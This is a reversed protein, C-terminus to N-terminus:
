ALRRNAEDLCALVGRQLYGKLAFLMVLLGMNRALDPAPTRERFGPAEIKEILALIRGETADLVVLLRAAERVPHVTSYIPFTVTTSREQFRLSGSWM